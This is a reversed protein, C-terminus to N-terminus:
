QLCYKTVEKMVSNDNNSGTIFNAVKKVSSHANSMAFSYYACDLMDVDNLYDGFAMVENYGVGLRNCIRSLASGKSIGKNMLDIWNSGSLAATCNEAFEDGLAEYQAGTFGDGNYIAIKFIEDDCDHLDDLYTQCIYYQAIEQDQKADSANHWAGKKGCLIVTYGKAECYDIVNMVVERDIISTYVVEGGIVIYAGNDCIFTLDKLHHEFQKKLVNFSRGSSIVFNIKRRSLDTIVDEFNDPLKKDDDLLTGDMDTAVIKIM